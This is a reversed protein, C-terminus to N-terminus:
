LKLEAYNWVGAMQEKIFTSALDYVNTQDTYWITKYHNTEAQLKGLKVVEIGYIPTKLVRLSEIHDLCEQKDRYISGGREVVAQRRM